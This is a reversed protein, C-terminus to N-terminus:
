LAGRVRRVGGPVIRRSTASRSWRARIRIFRVFASVCLRVFMSRADPGNIRKHTQVNTRKRLRLLLLSRPLPLPATPPPPIRLSRGERYVPGDDYYGDDYYYRDHYYRDHEAKDVENGIIYGVGAGIAGGIAAGELGAGNHDGVLAGAFTGLMAGAAAGRGANNCGGLAAMAIAAAAGGAM